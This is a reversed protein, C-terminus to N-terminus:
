GARWRDATEGIMDMDDRMEAIETELEAIEDECTPGELGARWREFWPGGPCATPKFERHGKIGKVSPIEKSLVRVLGTLATTQADTPERGQTFCGNLCVGITHGNHGETHGGTEELHLCWDINGEQSIHFHYAMGPWGMRVFSRALQESTIPQAFADHHIVITDITNLRRRAWSKTPHRALTERVDRAAYHNQEEHSEKVYKTLMAMLEPSRNLAFDWWMSDRFDICFFCFAELTPDGGLLGDLKVFEATARQPDGGYAGFWGKHPQAVVGADPGTEGLIVPMHRFEAPLAACWRQHRLPDGNPFHDGVPVGTRLATELSPWWYGHVNFGYAQRAAAHFRPDRTWNWNNVNPPQRESTSFMWYRYGAEKLRRGLEEDILCLLYINDGDRVSMENPGVVDKVTGDQVVHYGTLANWFIDVCEEPRELAVSDDHHRGVLRTTPSASHLERVFNTEHLPLVLAAAPKAEAVFQLAADAPKNIHVSLKKSM